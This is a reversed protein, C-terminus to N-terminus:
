TLKELPLLLAGDKWAGQGRGVSVQAHIDFRSGKRVQKKPNGLIQNYKCMKTAKFQFTCNVNLNRKSWM